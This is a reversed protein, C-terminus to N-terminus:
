ENDVDITLESECYSEDKYGCFKNDSFIDYYKRGAPCIFKLNILDALKDILTTLDHSKIRESVGNRRIKVYFGGSSRKYIRQHAITRNKIIKSITFPTIEPETLSLRVIYTGTGNKMYSSLLLESERRTIDGFFWDKSLVSRIIVFINLDRGNINQVLTGFWKIFLGLREVTVINKGEKEIALLAKLCLYDTDKKETL